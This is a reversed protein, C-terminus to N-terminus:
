SPSTPTPSTSRRCCRSTTSPTNRRTTPSCSFRASARCRTRLAPQGGHDAADGARVDRRRHVANVPTQPVTPDYVIKIGAPAASRLRAHRPHQRQRFTMRLPDRSTPISCRNPPRRARASACGSSRRGRGRRRSAPAFRRTSRTVKAAAQRNSPDYEAALQYEGRAAELQEKEEFERAKDFHARSAALMARQLAIKYNPNDPAVGSARRFYAVAQDLDGAKM